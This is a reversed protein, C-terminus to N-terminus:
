KLRIIKKVVQKSQHELVGLNLLTNFKAKEFEPHARWQEYRKFVPGSLVKEWTEAITQNTYLAAKQIGNQVLRDYLEPDNRLQLIANLVEEPTTALLYDEGPIGVQMFASDHGGIFPIHAHWANILKSPPKTNYPKADFSRIGILVDISSLDFCAGSPLTIFEIDYPELMSKWSDSSGALNGNWTQGAYAVRRVGRRNPNRTILGPQIWLPISSAGPNLQNKNQVLHYHAWRRKPYDARVCVIFHSPSGKLELLNDSHIINIANDALGNTCQVPLNNRKLLFYYTQLCWELDGKIIKGADTEVNINKYGELASDSCNIVFNFTTTM